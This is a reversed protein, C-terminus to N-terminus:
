QGNEDKARTVKGVKIERRRAAAKGREDKYDSMTIQESMHKNKEEFFIQQIMPSSALATSAAPPWHYFWLWMWGEPNAPSLGEASPKLWMGKQALIAPCKPISASLLLLHCGWLLFREQHSCLKHQVKQLILLSATLVQLSPALDQQRNSTTGKQFGYAIHAIWICLIILGASNVVVVTTACPCPERVKWSNGQMGPLM